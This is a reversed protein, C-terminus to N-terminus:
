ERNNIKMLQDIFNSCVEVAAAIDKEEVNELPHHSVGKFCRVFLMAVPSVAAIAVADHGAGSVLEVLEHGADGIAKELLRTMTADCNVPETEQVVQWQMTIHRRHCVSAALEQITKSCSSLVQKDVHRLDLTCTVEGPIVNSAANPIHLKGITAVISHTKAFEETALIFDAAACLADRRMNMPVTGAHGAEGSFKINVRMQGAIATVLAVPINKEYLVPGQEIHIEFYGLWEGAPIADQPLAETDGGVAAIAEQLSIGDADTKGLLAMDFTGAV